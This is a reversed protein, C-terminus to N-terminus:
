NDIAIKKRINKIGNEDVGLANMTELTDNWFGSILLNKAQSHSLGRTKAFFLAEANLPSATARHHCKVDDALIELSPKMSIVADPSLLLAPSEQSADSQPANTDIFITGEYMCTAKEFAISKILTHSITKPSLHNQKIHLSNKDVGKGIFFSFIHAESGIGVLDFVVEGSRNFMFFICKEGAGLRYTTQKDTTIDKFIM